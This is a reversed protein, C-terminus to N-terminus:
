RNMIFLCEWHLSVRIYNRDKGRVKVIWFLCCLKLYIGLKDTARAKDIWLLCRNSGLVHPVLGWWVAPAFRPGQLRVVRKEGVSAGTARQFRGGSGWHISLNTSSIVSPMSAFGRTHHFFYATFKGLRDCTVHLYRVIDDVVTGTLLSNETVPWTTVSFLLLSHGSVTVRRTKRCSAKGRKRWICNLLNKSDISM